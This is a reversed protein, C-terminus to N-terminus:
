FYRGPPAATGGGTEVRRSNSANGASTSSHYLAPRYPALFSIIPNLTGGLYDGFTGWTASDNTISLNKFYAIYLGLIILFAAVAAGGLIWLLRNPKNGKNM